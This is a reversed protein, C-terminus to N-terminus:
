EGRSKHSKKRALAESHEKRIEKQEEDSKLVTVCMTRGKKGNSPEVELKENDRVSGEADGKTGGLCLTDCLPLESPTTDQCHCSHGQGLMLKARSTGTPMQHIHCPGAM